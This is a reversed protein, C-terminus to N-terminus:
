NTESRKHSQGRKHHRSIYVTCGKMHNWSVTINIMQDHISIFKPVM